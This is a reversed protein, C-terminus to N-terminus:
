LNAYIQMIKEIKVWIQYLLKQFPEICVNTYNVNPWAWLHTSVSTALRFASLDCVSDAGSNASGAM